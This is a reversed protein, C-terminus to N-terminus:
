MWYLLKQSLICYFSGRGVSRPIMALGQLRQFHFLDIGVDATVIGGGYGGVYATAKLFDEIVGGVQVAGDVAM